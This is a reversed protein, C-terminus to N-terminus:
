LRVEHTYDKAETEKNDGKKKSKKVLLPSSIKEAWGFSKNIFTAQAFIKKDTDDWSGREKNELARILGRLIDALGKQADFGKEAFRSLHPPKLETVFVPYEKLFDITMNDVAEPKSKKFVKTIESMVDKNGYYAKEDKLSAGPVKLGALFPDAEYIKNATGLKQSTKVMKEFLDPNKKKLDNLMNKEAAVNIYAAARVDNRLLDSTFGPSIFTNLFADKNMALTGFEKEYKSVQEQKGASLWQSGTRAIGGLFRNGAYKAAFRELTGGGGLGEKDPEQYGATRLREGIARAGLGAGTYKVTGLAFGKTAKWVDGAASTGTKVVKDSIALGSILIGMIMIMQGISTSKNSLLDSSAVGIASTDLGAYKAKQAALIALYIFFTVTPAYFAWRFFNSWWEKWHGELDPWIWMLWALPMMILLMSIAIYRIFLMAAVSFLTLGGMITFILIFLLRSTFELIGTGWRLLFLSDGSQAPPSLLTQLTLTNALAQSIQSENAISHSIFFNTLVGTFDLVVGTIVLSFNILLAAVILKWLMEKMQYRPIRLITTFAILIIALVFGLNALDRTITWGAAVIPNDVLIRSNLNLTWTVMQGALYVGKSAAYALLYMGSSTNISSTDMPTATEAARSIIATGSLSLIVSTLFIIKTLRKM